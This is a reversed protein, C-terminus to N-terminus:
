LCRGLADIVAEPDESKLAAILELAAEKRAEHEESTGEDGYEDSDMDSEESEMRPEKGIALAIIKKKDM